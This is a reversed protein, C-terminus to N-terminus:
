PALSKPAAEIYKLDPKNGDTFPTPVAVIFADASVPETTASLMGAEVVDHVMTELNPEFIHIKGQNILSVTDPNVDVGTVNFGRSAMVAATPLGVYGLGIVCIDKFKRPM